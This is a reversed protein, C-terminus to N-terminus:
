GQQRANLRRVAQGLDTCLADFPREITAGPRGILVYDVGPRAIGPLVLRAAERLRRKARNRAVANGIKKSCTFGVRVLPDGDRRNRAQVLM